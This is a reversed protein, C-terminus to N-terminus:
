RLEGPSSLPPMAERVEDPLDARAIAENLADIIARIGDSLERAEAATLIEVRAYAVIIQTAEHCLRM